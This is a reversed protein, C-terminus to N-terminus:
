FDTGRGAKRVDHVTRLLRKIIIFFSFNLGNESGQDDLSPRISQCPMKLTGTPASSFWSM